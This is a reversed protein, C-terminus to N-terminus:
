TKTPEDKVDEYKIRYFSLVNLCAPDHVDKEYDDSINWLFISKKLISESFIM